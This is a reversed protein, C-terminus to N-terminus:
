ESHHYCLGAAETIAVKDVGQAIGMNIVVVDVLAAELEGAVWARERGHLNVRLFLVDKIKVIVVECKLVVVWM